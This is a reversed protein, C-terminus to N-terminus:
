VAGGLETQLSTFRGACEQEHQRAWDIHGQLRDRYEQLSAHLANQDATLLELQAAVAGLFAATAPRVKGNGEGGFWGPAQSNRAQTVEGHASGYQKGLEALDEIVPDLYWEIGKEMHDPEIKYCLNPDAEPNVM